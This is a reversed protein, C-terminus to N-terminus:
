IRETRGMMQQFYGDGADQLVEFEGSGNGAGNGAGDGDGWIKLFM